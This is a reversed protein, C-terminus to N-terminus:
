RKLGESNFSVDIADFKLEVNDYQVKIQPEIM